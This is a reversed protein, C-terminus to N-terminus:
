LIRTPLKVQGKKRDEHPVGYRVGVGGPDRGDRGVAEVRVDRVRWEWRNKGGAPLVLVERTEREKARQVRARRGQVELEERREKRAVREERTLGELRDEEEVIQQPHPIRADAPLLAPSFAQGADARTYHRSEPVPDFLQIKTLPHVPLDNLPEHRPPPPPNSSPSHYPTTPLMSHM